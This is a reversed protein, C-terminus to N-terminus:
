VGSYHVVGRWHSMRTAGKDAAVEEALASGSGRDIFSRSRTSCCEVIEAMVGEAMKVSLWKENLAMAMSPANVRYSM